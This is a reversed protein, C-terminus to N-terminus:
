TKDGRAGSLEGAVELNAKAEEVVIGQYGDYKSWNEHSGLWAEAQALMEKVGSARKVVLLRQYQVQAFLPELGTAPGGEPASALVEDYIDLALPNDGLEDATRGHWMHAHLGVLNERYSQFIEDFAKKANELATKAKSM